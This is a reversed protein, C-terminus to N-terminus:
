NNLSKKMLGFFNIVNNIYRLWIFYPINNYNDKMTLTYQLKKNIQIRYSRNFFILNEVHNPEPDIKIYKGPKLIQKHIVIKEDSLIIPFNSHVRWLLQDLQCVKSSQMWKEWWSMLSANTFEPFFANEFNIQIMIFYIPLINHLFEDHRFTKLIISYIM